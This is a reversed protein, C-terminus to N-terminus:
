RIEASGAPGRPEASTAATIPRSPVGEPHPAEPTPGKDILRNIYVIGAAFIALYVVVFLILTTAVQEM